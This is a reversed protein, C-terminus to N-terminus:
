IDRHLESIIMLFVEFCELVRELPEPSSGFWEPGDPNM